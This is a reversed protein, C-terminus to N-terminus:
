IETSTTKQKKRKRIFYIIGIIIAIVILIDLVEGFKRIAGWNKGLLFGCYTLAANWLTAGIATYIVFKSLRMKGTGAPISILHRVVPIFRSIFITKEGFRSFFSQTQELHHENLLFYKGFKKIFPRGGAAGIWYSLLSGAISGLSSVIIIWALSLKGEYWLFGAFPMVAESPVPLVMSEAVMLVFIGLYGGAEIISSFFHVLFESFGM